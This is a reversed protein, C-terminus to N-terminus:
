WTREAAAFVPQELILENKLVALRMSQHGGGVSLHGDAATSGSTMKRNLLVALVRGAARGSLAFREIAGPQALVNFVTM